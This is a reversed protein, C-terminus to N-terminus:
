EAGALVKVAQRQVPSLGDGKKSMIPDGNRQNTGINVQLAPLGMKRVQALTRVASLFRAHAKDIRRQQFEAQAITLGQAGISGAEYRHVIFWCLTAREALLRELPTPNPGELGSRVRDLKKAIAERIAVHEGSAKKILSERLWMAPSGLAEVWYAGQEGDDFLARLEPLCNEDGEEARKFLERTERGSAPPKPKVGTGSDTGQVTVIQQAFM